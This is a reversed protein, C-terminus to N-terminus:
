VVVVAVKCSLVFYLINLGEEPQFVNGAHLFTFFWFPFFTVAGVSPMKM